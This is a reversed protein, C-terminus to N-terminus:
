RPTGFVLVTRDEEECVQELVTKIADWRGGGVGAGLIPIGVRKGKTGDLMSKFSKRIAQKSMQGLAGCPKNPRGFNVQMYMSVITKGNGVDIFRATGLKKKDGATTRKDSEKVAKWKDMVVGTIGKDHAHWCNLNIALVEIVGTNLAKIISTNTDMLVLRSTPVFNSGIGKEALAKLKNEDIM